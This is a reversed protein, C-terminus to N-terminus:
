RVYVSWALGPLYSLSRSFSMFVLVLVLASIRVFFPRRCRCPFPCHSSCSGALPPCPLTTCCCVTTYHLAPRSLAPGPLCTLASRFLGHCSPCSLISFVLVHLCLPFSLHCYIALASLIPCSWTMNCNCLHPYRTNRCMCIGPLVVIIM